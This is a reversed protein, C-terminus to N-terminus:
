QNVVEGFLRKLAADVQMALYEAGAVNPHLGDDSLHPKAIDCVWPIAPSRVVLMRIASDPILELDYERALERELGRFPDTIFGRPIEVLVVTAGTDRCAEIFTVLSQRTAERGYGRLFDHGGLEVVVLQPDDALIEPLHKVMDRATVGARGWNEVPVRVLEQLYEPYAENSTMGTTLSDGVCVIPRSPDFTLVRSCHAGAHSEWSWALWTVWVAVIAISGFKGGSTWVLMRQRMFLVSVCVVLALLFGILWPSLEPQKAGLVSICLVLPLWGNRRRAFQISAVLLWGAVM